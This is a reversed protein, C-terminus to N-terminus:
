LFTKINKKYVEVGPQDFPNVGTLFCTVVCSFMHFYFFYGLTKEDWKEIELIINDIGGVEHHAKITSKFIIDNIDKFTKGEYISQIQSVNNVIHSTTIFFTKKGEQILQGYSHLDRSFLGVSPFVGKNDKGESESYLQQQWNLLNLHSPEYTILIESAFKLSLLYRITAYLSAQDHENKKIDSYALSAGQLVNEINIGAVAMPILGVNTLVSFRGGISSKLGFLHYKNQLAETKLSSEQPDTTVYVYEYYQDGYKDQLIKKFYTFTILTELTKGSKSVVYIAFRKNKVYQTLSLLQKESLNYGAFLVKTKQDEDFTEIQSDIAAKAGMYSGGIGITILVDVQNQIQAAVKKIQTIEEDMNAFNDVWGTFDDQKSFIRKKIEAVKSKLPDIDSQSIQSNQYNIKIM